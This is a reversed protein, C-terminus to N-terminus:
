IRLGITPSWSLWGLVYPVQRDNKTISTTSPSLASVDLRANPAYFLKFIEVHPVAFPVPAVLSGAARYLDRKYQTAALICGVAFM